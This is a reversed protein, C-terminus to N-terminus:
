LVLLNTSCDLSRPTGDGIEGVFPIRSATTQNFCGEPENEGLTGTLAEDSYQWGTLIYYLAATNDATAIVPKNIGREAHITMQAPPAKRAIANKIADASPRSNTTNENRPETM